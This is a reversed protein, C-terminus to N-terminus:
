VEKRRGGSLGGADMTMRDGCPAAGGPASGEGRCGCTTSVLCGDGRTVNRESTAAKTTATSAPALRRARVRTRVAKGPLLRV